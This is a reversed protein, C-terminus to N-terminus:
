FEELMIYIQLASCLVDDDDYIILRDSLEHWPLDLSFQFLKPLYKTCCYRCYVLVSSLLLVFYATGLRSQDPRTQCIMSQLYTKNDNKQPQKIGFM